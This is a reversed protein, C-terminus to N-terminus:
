AELPQVTLHYDELIRGHEDVLLFVRATWAPKGDDHPQSPLLQITFMVVDGHVSLDDAAAVLYKGSGVFADYAEAVRTTLQERGRFQAGEVFEVGTRAWLESVAKRRLTSDPESWVHTYRDVM